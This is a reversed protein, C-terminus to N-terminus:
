IEVGASDQFGNNIPSPGQMAINFVQAERSKGSGNDAHPQDNSLVIGDLVWEQLFPVSRWDDGVFDSGVLVNRTNWMEPLTEHELVNAEKGKGNGLQKNIWDLGVLKSMYANSKGDHGPLPFSYYGPRGYFRDPGEVELFERPGASIFVVDGASMRGASGLMDIPVVRTYPVCVNSKRDPHNASSKIPPAQVNSGPKNTRGRFAPLQGNLSTPKGRIDRKYGTAGGFPDTGGVASVLTAM